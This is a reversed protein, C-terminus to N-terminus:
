FDLKTCNKAMIFGLQVGKIILFGTLRLNAFDVKNKFFLGMKNIQVDLFINSNCVHWVGKGPISFILCYKKIKIVMTVYLYGRWFIRFAM